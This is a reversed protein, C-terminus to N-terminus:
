KLLELAKEMPELHTRNVNAISRSAKVIEIAALLSKAKGLLVLVMAAVGPSRSMGLPCHVLVKEGNRLLCQIVWAAMEYQYPKNGPGDLLGIKYNRFTGYFWPAELDKSVNVSSTIGIKRMKDIDRSDNSNGIYLNTDSVREITM